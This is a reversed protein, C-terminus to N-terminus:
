QTVMGMDEATVEPYTNLDSPLTVKVTDGTQINDMVMVMSIGMSQGEVETTMDMLVEMSSLSDGRFFIEADLANFAMNATTDTGTPLSSLITDIMGNFSSTAYNITYSVTGDSNDAKTLSEIACLPEVQAATATLDSTPMQEMVDEFSLAVKVKDEGSKVYYYGDAYWCEMNKTMTAQDEPLGMAAAMTPDIQLTMNMDYALKMQDLHELDSEMAMTMDISATLFDMDALTMGLAVGADTSMKAADTNAKTIAAAYDRYDSFFGLYMEADDKAIAGNQVLKTLLDAEGSKPKTALATFSMAALNDRLFNNEDCNLMDVLGLNRAFEMATAYTFDGGAADSYGLARLLFTTYQQATCLSDSGFKGNGVGNSLGNDYLYQVYPKAWDAVDTFPATYTSIAKAEEEAGLLRVLMVSAELRTPARDLDYGDAGGQFLGMDKLYDACHTFDAALAPVALVCVAATGLALHKFFRNM